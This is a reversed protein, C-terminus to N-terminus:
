YSKFLVLTLHLKLHYLGWLLEFIRLDEGLFYITVLLLELLIDFRNGIKKFSRMNWKYLVLDPM